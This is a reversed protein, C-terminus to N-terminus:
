SHGRQRQLAIRVNELVTLHPFTASIQFSRVMGMRAIASPRAGTIERGNIFFTPTGQVGFSTGQERVDLLSKAVRGHLTGGFAKERLALSHDFGAPLTMAQASAAGLLAVAIMAALSYIKPM